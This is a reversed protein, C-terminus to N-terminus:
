SGSAVTQKVNVFKIDFRM